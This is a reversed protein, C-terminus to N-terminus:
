LGNFGGPLYSIRPPIENWITYSIISKGNSLDFETSRLVQKRRFNVAYDKYLVVFEPFQYASTYQVELFYVEKGKRKMWKYFEVSAWTGAASATKPGYIGDPRIKLIEEQITWIQAPSKEKIKYLVSNEEWEKALRKLEDNPSEVHGVSDLVGILDLIEQDEM